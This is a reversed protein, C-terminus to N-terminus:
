SSENGPLDTLVEILKDKLVTMTYPKQIFGALQSSDFRRTAEQENYGSCLVVKLDPRLQRMERFTEEGDMNPMMLDLLVCVIEEHHERFLELALEGGSATMTSFGLRELMQAGVAVITEEDDVILVTGSGCWEDIEIANEKGAAVEGPAADNSPFLVKFTTGKGVESQIKLAGKHGRVIGLVASMGLGRGTFKTTFFPDFIKEITAKDMGCGTDAVEFFLYYNEPLQEELSARLIENVGDLYARDCYMAGTSLSIVGSKDGIAEAANTILNMIVQRIQTVDGDFTPLNEAFDYKLVTKKSISVELLHAMEGLLEGPNIPEVVFQGKGSYALMQKALEAARKAAKEIEQINALAPSMPSLEDLALDANGLIAMLINNFDHAIGGALLGLSELKQTHQLQREMTLQEREARKRETIDNSTSIFSTFNGDKDLLPSIRVDYYRNDGGPTIYLTEYQDPRGSTAVRELCDVTIQHYDPPTFDLISKGIVRDTTLPPATHNIFRITYDRDLLMIHDTSNETLSRWREESSRLDRMFLLSSLADGIRRGIERFLNEEEASWIRPHACQHMGLVWPKGTQPHVKMLMQSLITFRRATETATDPNSYDFTIVDNKDLLLRFTDADEAQMPVAEGLAFVGPFDPSTREMPVSWSETEPDCPFLLWARDAEFLDLTTQLVDSMMQELDTSRQIVQDIQAIQELFRTHLRNAQEASRRLTVDEFTGLLGIVRAAADHLPVKNTILWAESGDPRTLKEEIGLEPSDAEMVRRDYERYHDAEERTVSIDFDTKGIIDAPDDIGVSEALSKNCGLFVSDRDKWFVAQPINNIVLDLMEESARLTAEAKRRATIDRCSEIIQIVEGKEDLIPAAVIEVQLPSGTANYHTHEITVPARTKIVQELPCPSETGECPMASQHCLQHCKSNAAIPEELGAMKLATRNALAITHDRNVVMLGEPIGDVVSQMFARSREQRFVARDRERVHRQIGGTGLIMGALGILWLLGLASSHTLIMKNARTFFPGAAVAVGVGGRIDGVKYGQKAHCKLCSQETVMPRMLRLYPEGALQTFEIVETVGEEFSELAKREWEDPSNEPRLPKLSTIHGRVGYLESFDEMMQRLMYAPNLLTLQKGTTTQVDRDPIHSLYPNPPTHETPPVYVGGHGASWLRFAQDKLFHARAEARVLERHEHREQHANWLSLGIILLTWAAALIFTYGKIHLSRQYSPLTASTNNKM